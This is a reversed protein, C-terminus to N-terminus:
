NSVKIFQQSNVQKGATTKVIYVGPALNAVDIKQAFNGSNAKGEFVNQVLKGSLDYLHISTKAEKSNQINIITHTSAPNPSLTASFLDITPTSINEFDAKYDKSLQTFGGTCAIGFNEMYSSTNGELSILGNTQVINLEGVKYCWRLGETKIENVIAYEEFHLKNGVIIGRVKVEAFDGDRKIITSIGEVLDGNQKLDFKYEFEQAYDQLNFDFQKRVGEFTGNLNYTSQAVISGSVVVLFLSYIFVYFKLSNPQLNKMVNKQKSLHFICVNEM